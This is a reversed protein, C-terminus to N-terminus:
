AMELGPCYLDIKRCICIAAQAETWMDRINQSLLPPGAHDEGDDRRRREDDVDGVAAPSSSSGHWLGHGIMQHCRARAGHEGAFARRRQSLQHHGGSRCRFFAIAFRLRHGNQLSM